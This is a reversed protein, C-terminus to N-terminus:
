KTRGAFVPAPSLMAIDQQHALKLARRGLPTIKYFRRTRTQEQPIKEERSTLWKDEELRALTTYISGRPLSPDLKLLHAGTLEGHLAVSELLKLRTGKILPM